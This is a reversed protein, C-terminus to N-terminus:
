HPRNPGFPWSESRTGAVAPRNPNPAPWKFAEGARLRRVLCVQPFSARQLQGGQHWTCWAPTECSGNLVDTVAMVPGGAVLRVVDGVVAPDTATVPRFIGRVVPEASSYWRRTVLGAAKSRAARRWGRLFGKGFEVLVDAVVLVVLVALGNDAM